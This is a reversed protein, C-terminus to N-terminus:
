DNARRVNKIKRKDLRRLIRLDAKSIIWNKNRRFRRGLHTEINKIRKISKHYYSQVKDKTNPNHRFQQYGRRPTKSITLSPNRTMEHGYHYDCNKSISMFPHGSKADRYFRLRHDGPIKQKNYPRQIKRRPM